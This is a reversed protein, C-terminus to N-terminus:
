SRQLLVAAATAGAGCISILGYRASRRHQLQYALNMALRIGTAAFPHGMALSGGRPNLRDPEPEGIPEQHWGQHWAAINCLVQGAFAEHVEVIDIDALKLGNRSLLRPVALAPAMLLGQEPDISAFELDQIYAMPLIGHERCHTESALALAAAGDTLPSSSAATITGLGDDAFVPKLSALKEMSSDPRIMNDASVGDLAYIQSEMHGQQQAAHARQHSQLAFQDQAQRSIRWQRVMLECHEGMSLGTSPEAIAPPDPLFDGPRFGLALKLRAALSRASAMDLFRRAPNPKFLLAPNSMSEVGGAIGVRCRGAQISQCVAALTTIGTICNDTQTVGRVSDELPGRLVIERAIQPIRPDVVVIGWQLEDVQNAQITGPELLGDVARLSLSLASHHRFVGAARVFPTRVGAM